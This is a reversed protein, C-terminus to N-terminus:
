KKRRAAREKNEAMSKKSHCKRDVVQINDNWIRRVLTDLTLDSGDKPHVPDIHDVQIETRKALNSCIACRYRPGDSTEVRAATIANNYIRSRRFIQRVATALLEVEPDVHSERIEWVWSNEVMVLRAKKTPKPGVAALFANFSDALGAPLKKKNSVWANYEPSRPPIGTNKKQRVGHKTRSDVACAACKKDPHSRIAAETSITLHGCPAMYEIYFSRNKYGEDPGYFIRTVQYGAVKKKTAQLYALRERTRRGKVLPIHMSPAFSKLDILYKGYTSDSVLVGSDTIDVVSLFSAYGAETVVKNLTDKTHRPM